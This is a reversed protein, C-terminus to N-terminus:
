ILGLNAAAQKVDAVTDEPLCGESMIKSAYRWQTPTLLPTESDEEVSLAYQFYEAEENTGTQLYLSYAQTAKNQCIFQGFSPESVDCAKGEPEAHSTPTLKGSQLHVNKHEDCLYIFTHLEM